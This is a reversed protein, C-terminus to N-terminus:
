KNVNSSKGATQWTDAIFNCRRTMDDVTGIGEDKRVENSPFESLQNKITDMSVTMINQAVDGKVLYVSVLTSMFEKARANQSYINNILNQDGLETEQKVSSCFQWYASACSAFSLNHVTDQIVASQSTALKIKNQEDSEKKIQEQLKENYAKYRESIEKNAEEYQKRVVDNQGRVFNDM